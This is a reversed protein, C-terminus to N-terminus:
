AVSLEQKQGARATLLQGHAKDETTEGKSVGTTEKNM